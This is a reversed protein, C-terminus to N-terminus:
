CVLLCGVPKMMVCSSPFLALRQPTFRDPECLISLISHLCPRLLLLKQSYNVRVAPCLSFGPSLSVDLLLRVVETKGCLAAQHLATGSESQRNIDIGAQILLRCCFFGLLGNYTFDPSHLSRGAVVLLFVSLSLAAGQRLIGVTHCRHTREQCGFAAAVSRQPRLAEAGAHGCVHQQQAPAAGGALLRATM